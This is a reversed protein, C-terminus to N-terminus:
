EWQDDGYEGFKHGCSRCQFEFAEQHKEPPGCGELNVIHGARELKKVEDEVPFGWLNIILSTHGCEPCETEMM